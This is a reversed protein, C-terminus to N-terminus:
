EVVLDAIERVHDTLGLESTVFGTLDCKSRGEGSGYRGRLESSSEVHMRAM